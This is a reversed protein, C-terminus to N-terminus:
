MMLSVTRAAIARGMVWAHGDHRMGFQLCFMSREEDRVDLNIRRMASQLDAPQADPRKVRARMARVEFADPGV